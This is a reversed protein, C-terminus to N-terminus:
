RGIYLYVYVTVLRNDHDVIVMLGYGEPGVGSFLVRGDEVAQVHSGEPASIDIGKHPDKADVSFKRVVRGSVPWVLLKSPRVLSVPKAEPRSTPRQYLRSIADGRPIRLRWGVELRDPDRIGNTQVLAETSVGYLRSISYLTEGKRVVHVKEYTTRPHRWSSWYPIRPACGPLSFVLAL